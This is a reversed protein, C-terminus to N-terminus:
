LSAPDYRGAVEEDVTTPLERLGLAPPLEIEGPVNGAGNEEVDLAIERRRRVRGVAAAM